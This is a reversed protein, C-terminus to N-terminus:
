AVRGMDTETKLTLKPGGAMNGILRLALQRERQHRQAPQYDATYGADNQWSYPAKAPRVQDPKALCLKTNNQETNNTKIM